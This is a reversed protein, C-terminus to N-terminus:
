ELLLGLEDFQTYKDWSVWSEAIRGREFRDIQVGTWSVRRGTPALGQYAGQQTATFRWHTAVRDGEGIQTLIEVKLDPFARHNSEVLAIWSALDVAKVGGAAAPEQHNTYDKTFVSDSDDSSDGGWMELARRSLSKKDELLM